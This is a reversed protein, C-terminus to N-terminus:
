KLLEEIKEHAEEREEQDLVTYVVYRGFVRVEASDLKKAERPAYSEIFARQEERLSTVYQECLTRLVPVDEESKALFVGVEDINESRVSYVLSQDSYTDTDEFFFRLHDKGFAAYEEDDGLQDCIADTIARCSVDTRYEQTRRCGISPLLTLLLLCCLLRKM